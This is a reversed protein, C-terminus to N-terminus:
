IKQQLMYCDNSTAKRTGVIENIFINIDRAQGLIPLLCSLFYCSIPIHTLLNSEMLTKLITLLYAKFIRSNSALIKWKSIVCSRFCDTFFIRKKTQTQMRKKGCPGKCCIANPKTHGGILGGIFKPKKPGRRYKM